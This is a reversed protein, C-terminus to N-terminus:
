VTAGELERQVALGIAWVWRAQESVVAMRAKCARMGNDSTLHEYRGIPRANGKDAMAKVEPSVIRTAPLVKKRGTRLSISANGEVLTRRLRSNGAKTIGGHIEKEGSSGNKPVTGLWCSVKRGSKFRSFDGFEAAALFATRAEIGKLATIADVYPKWRPKEAADAVAQKASAALAENAEVAARCCALAKRACQDALEISDAWKWFGADM